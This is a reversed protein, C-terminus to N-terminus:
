IGKLGSENWEPTLHPLPSLLTSTRKLRKRGLTWGSWQRQGGGGSCGAEDPSRMQGMETQSTVTLLLPAQLWVRPCWDGLDFSLSPISYKNNRNTHFPFINAKAETFNHLPSGLQSQFFASFKFFSPIFFFVFLFFVYFGQKKQYLNQEKCIIRQKCPQTICAKRILSHM